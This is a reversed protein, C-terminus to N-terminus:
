ALESRTTSASPIDFSCAALSSRDPKSAVGMRVQATQWFTSRSARTPVLWKMGMLHRRAARPKESQLL